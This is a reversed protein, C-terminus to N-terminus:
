TDGALGSKPNGTIKFSLVKFTSVTPKSKKMSGGDASSRLLILYVFRFLLMEVEPPCQLSEWCSKSASHLTYISVSTLATGPGPRLRGTSSNTKMQKQICCCRCLQM